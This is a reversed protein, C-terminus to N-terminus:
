SRGAGIAALLATETPTSGLGLSAGLRAAPPPELRSAALAPWSQEAFVTEVPGDLAIRGAQMVVVRSFTEAVFRMDHSVAIVTRGAESLGGVLREIAAVGPADQGTTPEDLIVVQTDMALVSAIALLKRRSYGLDYPNDDRVQELGVLRLSRVVADELVGGRLGANRAGFMVERRVTSSFIQHDPNQFALGILRSLQAVRLLAADRGDILVRGSTPRLLGNLHRVLTTKGSGNEGVLALRETPHIELDVGELARVGGPYVHSLGELHLHTM